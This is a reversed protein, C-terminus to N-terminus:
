RLKPKALNSSVSLESQTDEGIEIVTKPRKAATEKRKSSSKGKTSKKEGGESSDGKYEKDKRKTKSLSRQKKAAKKFNMYARLKPHMKKEINASPKIGFARNFEDIIEKCDIMHEEPEWTAEEVPYGMWKVKYVIDGKEVKKQLIRQAQFNEYEGKQHKQRKRM